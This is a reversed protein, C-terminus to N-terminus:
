VPVVISGLEWCPENQVVMIAALFQLGKLADVADIVGNCDLDGWLAPADV